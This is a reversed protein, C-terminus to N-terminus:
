ETAELIREFCLSAPADVYDGFNPILRYGAGEYLRVAEPQRTGTELRVRTAGRERARTELDGLILQGIKRGRYEPRVYMRKVEVTPQEDVLDRFAGCGIPTAGDYAVVFVAIDAATPRHGPEFDGGYRAVIDARQAARLEEAHPDDWRVVRLVVDSATENIAM